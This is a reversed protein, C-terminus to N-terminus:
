EQIIFRNIDSASGKAPVVTKQAPMLWLTKKAPDYCCATFVGDVPTPVSGIRNRSEGNRMDIILDRHLGFACFNEYLMATLQCEFKSSKFGGQGLLAISLRDGSNLMPKITTSIVTLASEINRLASDEHRPVEINAVVGFSGTTNHIVIGLCNTLNNTGVSSNRTSVAFKPTVCVGQMDDAAIKVELNM